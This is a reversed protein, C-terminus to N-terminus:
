ANHLLEIELKCIINWIEEDSRYASFFPERARHNFAFLYAESMYRPAHQFHKNMSNKALKFNRFSGGWFSKENEVRWLTGGTQYKIHTHIWVHKSPFIKM